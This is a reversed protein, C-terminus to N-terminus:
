SASTFTMPVVRMRSADRRCPAFITSEEVPPAM